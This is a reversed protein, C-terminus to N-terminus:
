KPRPEQGRRALFSSVMRKFLRGHNPVRLHVLEHVIVEDQFRRTRRLLDRSFSVTGRTSSSAWKRRMSQLRVQRLTIRIIAEWHTVRARFAAEGRAPKKRTAKM